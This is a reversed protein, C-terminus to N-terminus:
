RANPNFRAVPVVTAGPHKAVILATVEAQSQLAMGIRKWDGFSDGTKRYVYGTGVALRLDFSEIKM